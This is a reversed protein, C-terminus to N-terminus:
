VNNCCGHQRWGRRHEKSCVCVYVQTEDFYDSKRWYAHAKRNHRWMDSEYKYTDTHEKSNSHMSADVANRTPTFVNYLVISGTKGCFTMDYIRRLSSICPFQM